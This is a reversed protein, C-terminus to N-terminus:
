EVVVRYFKMTENVAPTDTWTGSTLGTPGDIWDGTTLDTRTQIKYTKGVVPAWTITVDGNLEMTQSAIEFKSNSDYPNTGAADEDGNSQGDGDEDGGASILNVFPSQSSTPGKSNPDDPNIARVSISVQQGEAADVTFESETTIYIVPDGSNIIVSVEYQPVVGESDAPVDAWNFTVQDGIEYNYANPMAPMAPTATPATVDYVKLYQAEFPATSWEGVTTPVKKMGVFFGNTELQAKTYNSPWLLPDRRTSDQGLYAAINRVNYNRGDKLGMLATLASPLKFNDAQDNNRDLNSFALM